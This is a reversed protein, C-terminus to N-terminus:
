MVYAASASDTVLRIIVYSLLGKGAGWECAQLCVVVRAVCSCVCTGSRALPQSFVESQVSFATM